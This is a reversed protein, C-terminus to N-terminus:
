PAVLHRAQYSAQQDSGEPVSSRPKSVSVMPGTPEKVDGQKLSIRRRQRTVAFWLLTQWFETAHENCAPEEAAPILATAPRECRACTRM